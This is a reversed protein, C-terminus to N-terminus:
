NTFYSCVDILLTFKSKTGNFGSHSDYTKWLSRTALM